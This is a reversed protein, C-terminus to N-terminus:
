SYRLKGLCFFVGLIWLFVVGFVKWFRGGSGGFFPGFDNWFPTWSPDWSPCAKPGGKQGRIKVELAARPREQPRRPRIQLVLMLDLLAELDFFFRHWFRDTKQHWTPGRKPGIKNPKRHWFPEFNLDFVLNETGSDAQSIANATFTNTEIIDAGASLYSAHIDRIIDPQTLTLIENNGKLDMSHDNFRNGRFDEETLRHAQIATGMAGDMVMIRQNLQETIPPSTRKDM